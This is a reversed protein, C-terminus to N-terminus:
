VRLQFCVMTHISHSGRSNRNRINSRVNFCMISQDSSLFLIPSMFDFSKSVNVQFFKLSFFHKEKKVNACFNSVFEILILMRIKSFKWIEHSLDFYKRREIWYLLNVKYINQGHLSFRLRKRNSQIVLNV